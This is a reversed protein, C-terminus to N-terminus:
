DARRGFASTVAFLYSYAGATGASGPVLGSGLGLAGLTAGLVDGAKFAWVAGAIGMSWSALSKGVLRGVSRRNDHALDAIEQSREQLVSKREAPDSIRGLEVLFGQLSHMYAKHADGQDERLQLVEELPVTSLDLTVPELDLRVVGECSPMSERSLADLLDTAAKALNTAPHVAMGRRLGPYRALQGLIVLITTRVTPHLPISVGDESGRALGRLRFEDVLFEALDVDAGYGIRSQSLEAFYDAEPLGDFVGEALLDTMIEALKEVVEADIWENPELVRLLGQEELPGALSPDADRQRGRMYDPLLIAVEDFFLLLSKIWDGEGALWYPAPYYYATDKLRREERGDYSWDARASEQATGSYRCPDNDAM